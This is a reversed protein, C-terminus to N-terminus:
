IGPMPEIREKLRGISASVAMSLSEAVRCFVGEWDGPSTQRFLRM